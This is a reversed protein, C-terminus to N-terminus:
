SAQEKFLFTLETSLIVLFLYNRISFIGTYQIRVSTKGAWKVLINHFGKKISRIKGAYNGKNKKPVTGYLPKIKYARNLRQKWLCQLLYAIDLIDSFLKIIVVFKWMILQLYLFAKFLMVFGSFNWIAFIHWDRINQPYYTHYM